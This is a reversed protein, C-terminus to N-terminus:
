QDQHLRNDFVHLSIYARYTMSCVVFATNASGFGQLVDKEAPIETEEVCVCRKEELCVRVEREKREAIAERLFTRRM